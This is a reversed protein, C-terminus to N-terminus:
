LLVAQWVRAGRYHLETSQGYKCFDTFPLIDLLYLLILTGLRELLVIGLLSVLSACVWIIKLNCFYLLSKVCVPVLAPLLLCSTYASVPDVEEKDGTFSSGDCYRVKVKNWNYFDPKSLNRM